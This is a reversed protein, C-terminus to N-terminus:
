LIVLSSKMGMWQMWCFIPYLDQLATYVLQMLMENNFVAFTNTTQPLICAAHYACYQKLLYMIFLVKVVFGTPRNAIVAKL